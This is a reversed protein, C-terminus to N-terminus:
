KVRTKIEDYLSNIPYDDSCFNTIFFLSPLTNDDPDTESTDVLGKIVLYKPILEATVNIGDSYHRKGFLTRHHVIEWDPIERVIASADEFTLNDELTKIQNKIGELKKSFEELKSM